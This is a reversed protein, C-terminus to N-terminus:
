EDVEEDEEIVTYRALHMECEYAEEVEDYLYQTLQEWLDDAEPDDSEYIFPIKIYGKIRRTM